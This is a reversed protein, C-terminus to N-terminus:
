GWAMARERVAQPDLEGWTNVNEEVPQGDWANVPQESWAEGHQGEPQSDWANLARPTARVSSWADVNARAKVPKSSANVKREWVEGVVLLALVIGAMIWKGNGSIISGVIPIHYRMKGVVQGFSLPDDKTQNADGQTIIRGGEGNSAIEKGVVRHTIMQAQNDKPRFAVVDGVSVGAGNVPQMVVIDGPRITPEMSGTVVVMPAWGLLRPIVLAGLLLGGVLLTLAYMVGKYAAYVNSSSM